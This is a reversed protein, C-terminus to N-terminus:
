KEALLKQIINILQQKKIPKALYEDCGAKLAKERDEPMAYATQAIILVDTNFKRIQRTAEYGDIDPMKIDMLILDIDPNEHMLNLAQRGNTAHFVKESIRKLVVTLYYDSFETDEAILINLKFGPDM